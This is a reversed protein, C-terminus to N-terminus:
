ATSADIFRQGADTKRLTKEREDHIDKPRPTSGFCFLVFCFSFCFRTSSDGSASAIPPSFLLVRHNASDSGPPHAAMSVRYFFFGLVFSVLGSDDTRSVWYLFFSFFGARGGTQDFRFSSSRRRLFISPGVVFISLFSATSHRSM